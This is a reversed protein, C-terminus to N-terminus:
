GGALKTNKFGRDKLYQLIKNRHNGQVIIEDNKSSGGAGCKQRLEKGLAEIDTLQPNIGKIMTAEKNGKLRTLHIRVQDSFDNTKSYQTNQKEESLDPLADGLGFINRLDQLDKINKNSM